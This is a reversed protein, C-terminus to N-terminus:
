FILVLTVEVCQDDAVLIIPLILWQRNLEKPRTAPPHTALAAHAQSYVAKPMGASDLIIAIDGHRV